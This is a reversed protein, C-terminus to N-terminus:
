PRCAPPVGPPEKGDLGPLAHPLRTIRRAGVAEWVADPAAARVRAYLKHQESPALYAVPTAARAAYTWCPRRNARLPLGIPLTEQSALALPYADWYDAWIARVELRRLTAIQAAVDNRCAAGRGVNRAHLDITSPIRPSVLGALLVGMVRVSRRAMAWAALLSFPAVGLLLYRSSETDLAGIVHFAGVLAATSGLMLVPLRADSPARVRKVLWGLLCCLSAIAAGTGLKWFWGAQLHTSPDLWDLGLYRPLASGFFLRVGSLWSRPDQPLSHRGAASLSALTVDLMVIPVLGALLPRLTRRRWALYAIPLTYAATLHDGFFAVGLIAGTGLWVSMGREDESIAREFAWLSLSICPQRAGYLSMQGAATVAPALAFLLGAAFWPAGIRRALRTVQWLQLLAFGLTFLEGARPTIAGFWGLPMLLLPEISGMYRQGWFYPTFDGAAFHRAMLLVIAADANICDASVLLPLRTLVLLALLLLSACFVRLRAGTRAHDEVTM